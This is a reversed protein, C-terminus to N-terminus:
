SGHPETLSVLWSVWALVTQKRRDITTDSLKDGNSKNSDTSKKFTNFVFDNSPRDGLELWKLYIISMTEIRLIEKAILQYKEKYPKTFIDIAKETAQRLQTGNTDQSTTALGLYQAANYYYDSQRPDFSYHTALDEVSLPTEILISVLDIVREISDAQPFPINALNAKNRNNENQGSKAYEVLNNTEPHSHNLMYRQHKVLQSSSFNNIEPVDFEFIDFVDNSFTLFIPVARKQIRQLWTRLPYYLQRFNFNASAHNKVEFIYFNDQGEYGADIEMQAKRVSISHQLGQKTDVFFDFNGTRMRGSVTLILDEGTFDKLIESAFAINIVGAEGTLNQYDLTELAPPLSLIRVKNDPRHWKPLQQFIQFPGVRYSSNSLTLISLGNEKFIKPLNEEHDIKGMHRPERFLRLQDATLDMFGFREVNEPVKYYEFANSWAVDNATEGTM